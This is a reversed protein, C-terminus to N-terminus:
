NKTPSERIMDIGCDYPITVFGLSGYFARLNIENTQSDRPSCLLGIKEFCSEKISLFTSLAARGLGQGRYEPDIEFLGIILLDPGKYDYEIRGVLDDTEPGPVYIDAVGSTIIIGQSALFRFDQKESYSLEIGFSLQM